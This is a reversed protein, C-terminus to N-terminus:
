PRGGPELERWLLAGALLQGVGFTLGMGWPSPTTGPLATVLLVAGAALYVAVVGLFVRPLFPCSSLAGLGFFLSWLGLLLEARDWLSWTVLLGVALAPVFQGLAPLLEHRRLSRGRLRMDLAVLVVCSMALGLWALAHDQANAAPWFLSQAAALLLAGVGTAAVPLARYGRFFAGRALQAHIDGVRQLARELDGSTGRTM